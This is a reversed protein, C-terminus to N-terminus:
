AGGLELRNVHIYCFPPFFLLFLSTLSNELSSYLSTQESFLVGYLDPLAKMEAGTHLSAGASGECKGEKRSKCKEM